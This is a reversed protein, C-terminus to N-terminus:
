CSLRDIIQVLLSYRTRQCLACSPRTSAKRACVSSSGFWMGATQTSCIRSFPLKFTRKATFLLLHHSPSVIRWSRLCRKFSEERNQWREWVTLLKNRLIKCQQCHCPRCSEILISSSSKTPIMEIHEVRMRWRSRKIGPLLFSLFGFFEIFSTRCFAISYTLRIFISFIGSLSRCDVMDKNLVFALSITLSISKHRPCRVGVRRSSRTLRTYWKCWTVFSLVKSSRIGVSSICCSAFILRNVPPSSWTPGYIFDM